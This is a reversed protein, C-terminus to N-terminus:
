SDKLTDFISLAVDLFLVSLVEEYLIVLLLHDNNDYEDAVRRSLWVVCLTHM